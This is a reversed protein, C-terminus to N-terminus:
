KREDGEILIEPAPAIVPAVPTDVEVKVAEDVTVKEDNVVSLPTRYVLPEPPTIACVPCPAAPVTSCPLPVEAGEKLATARVVSTDPISGIPFPPVLVEVM